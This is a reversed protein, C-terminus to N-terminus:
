VIVVSEPIYTKTGSSFGVGACISKLMEHMVATAQGTYAVVKRYCGFISTGHCGNHVPKLLCGYVCVCVM